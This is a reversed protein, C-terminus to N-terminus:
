KIWVSPTSTAFWSLNAIRRSPQFFSGHSPRRGTTTSHVLLGIWSVNSDDKIVIATSRKFRLCVDCGWSFLARSPGYESILIYRFSSHDCDFPFRVLFCTHVNSKSNFFHHHPLAHILPIKLITTRPMKSFHPFTKPGHLVGSEKRPPQLACCQVNRCFM